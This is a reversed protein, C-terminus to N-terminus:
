PQGIEADAPAGAYVPECRTLKYLAPRARVARTAAELFDCGRRDSISRAEAILEAAADALVEHAVRPEPSRAFLAATADRLNSESLDFGGARRIFTIKEM